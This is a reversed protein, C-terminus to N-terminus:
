NGSSLYSRIMKETRWMWTTQDVSAGLVIKSRGLVHGDLEARVEGVETGATVPAALKQPVDWVLQIRDWDVARTVAWIDGSAQVPVSEERGNEVAIVPKETADSRFLM